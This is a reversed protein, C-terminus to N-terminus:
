RMAQPDFGAPLRSQLWARGEFAGMHGSQQVVLDGSEVQAAGRTPAVPESAQRFDDFHRGLLERLDPKFPGSWAVAFVIGDAGVYERVVTGTELTRAVETYPAGTPTTAQAARAQPGSAAAAPVGPRDDLAARALGSALLLACAICTKVSPDGDRGSQPPLGRVEAALM